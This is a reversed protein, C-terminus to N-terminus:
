RILRAGGDGSGNTNASHCDTCVARNEMSHPISPAGSTSEQHCLTCTDEGRGAHSLPMSLGKAAGHCSACAKGGTTPHPAAPPAKSPAKHCLECLYAPRDKHSTPLAVLVGHCSTCQKDKFALHGMQPPPTSTPKHCTQCQDDPAGVHRAPMPALRGDSHCFSCQEWGAVQHPIEPMPKGRVLKNDQLHCSVCDEHMALSGESSHQPAPTPVSQVAPAAPALAKQGLTMPECAAFMGALVLGALGLGLRIALLRLGAADAKM